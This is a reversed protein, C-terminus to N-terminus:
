VYSGPFKNRGEVRVGSDPTSVPPLIFLTPRSGTGEDLRVRADSTPKPYRTRRRHTRVQVPYVRGRPVRSGPDVKGGEGLVRGNPVPPRYFPGRERGTGLSKPDPGDPSRTGLETM